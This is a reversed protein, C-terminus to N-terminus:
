IKFESLKKHLKVNYVWIYDVKKSIVLTILKVTYINKILEGASRHQLKDPHKSIKLSPRESYRLGCNFGLCVFCIIKHRVAIDLLLNNQTNRFVYEILCCIDSANTYFDTSRYSILAITCLSLFAGNINTVFSKFRLESFIASALRFDM